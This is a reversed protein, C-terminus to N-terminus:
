KSGGGNGIAPGALALIKPAPTQPPGLSAIRMDTIERQLRDLREELAQGNARSYPAAPKPANVHSNLATMARLSAAEARGIRGELQEFLHFHDLSVDKAQVLFAAFEARIKTVGAEVAFLRDMLELLLADGTAPPPSPAPSPPPPAVPMLRGFAKMRYNQFSTLRVGIRDAEAREDVPRSYHCLGDEGKTAVTRLFDNVAVLQM